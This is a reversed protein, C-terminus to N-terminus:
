LLAAGAGLAKGLAMLDPRLGLTASHFPRGTRGLGCQIEDAILLAGTRECAANVAEAFAPSLPWVGGEGQIPELIIAAVDPGM